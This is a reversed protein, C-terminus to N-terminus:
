TTLFRWAIQLPGGVVPCQQLICVPTFANKFVIIKEHNLSCSDRLTKLHHQFSTSRVLSDVVDCPNNITFANPDWGTGDGPEPCPPLPDDIVQQQLVPTCPYDHPIDGDGGGGTPTGGAGTPPGGETPPISPTGDGYCTTAGMTELWCYTGCLDCGGHAQCYNPTGCHIGQWTIDSCIVNGLLNTSGSSGDSFGEISQSSLTIQTTQNHLTDSSFLRPDNIKYSNIGFVNKNLIIMSYAFQTASLENESEEFAYNKYDQALRYVIPMSSDTIVALIYGNVKSETELVLPVYVLTSTDEQANNAFGSQHSVQSKSRILAKEWVPYGNKTAFETVFPKIDNRRRIENLVKITLPNTSNPVNFFKDTADMVQHKGILDLKTCAFYFPIISMFTILFASYLRLRRDPLLETMLPPKPNHLYHKRNIWGM